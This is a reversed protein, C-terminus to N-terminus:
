ITSEDSLLVQEGFLWLTIDQKIASVIEREMALFVKALKTSVWEPKDFGTNMLLTVIWLQRWHEGEDPYKQLACKLNYLANEDVGLNLLMPIDPPCTLVNEPKLKQNLMKAVELAQKKPPLDIKQVKQQIEDHSKRLFAPIDYYNHLSDDGGLSTANRTFSGSAMSHNDVVSKRFYASHSDSCVKSCPQMQPVVHLLPYGDANEIESEGIVVYSTYATLLEMQLSLAEARDEPLRILEFMAGLQAAAKEWKGKTRQPEFITKQEIGDMFLSASQQEESRGCVFAPIQHFVEAPKEMWNVKGEWALEIAVSRQTLRTILEFMISGLPEIPNIQLLSGGSENILQSLFHADAAHGLALGHIVCSQRKSKLQLALKDEKSCWTRGDTLVLIQQPGMEPDCQDLVVNLANVIETGGLDANIHPIYEQLTAKTQSNFSRPSDFLVEISSGFRYLNFNFSANLSRLLRKLASRVQQISAGSMSGSCDILVHLNANNQNVQQVEFSPLYGLQYCRNNLTGSFLYSSNPLEFSVIIDKDLVGHMHYMGDSKATLVFNSRNITAPQCFRIEADFSYIADFSNKPAITPSDLGYKNAIVTPLRYQWDGAQAQIITAITLEVYGTDAPALNGLSIQYVGESVSEVLVSRRGNAIGEEYEDAAKVRSTIQGLFKEDNISVCTSMLCAMIPLPFHVLAEIIDQTDNHLNMKYRTIALPANVEINIESNKLIKSTDNM